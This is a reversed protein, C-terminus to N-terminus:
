WSITYYSTERPDISSVNNYEVKFGRKTLEQQVLKDLSNTYITMKNNYAADKIRILLGELELKLKESMVNTATMRAWNANIEPHIKDSEM